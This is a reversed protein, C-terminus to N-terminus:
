SQSQERLERLSAIWADFSELTANRAPSPRLKEIKNRLLERARSLRSKVTGEPIDLIRGVEAVGLGEWYHLEVAMQMEVPLRRLAGLLVLHEEKRAVVLSPSEFSDAVSIDDMAEEPGHLERLERLFQIRAIGLVFARFSGEERYRDASELCALFTRQVLDEPNRACKNVFFRYVTAFHRRVLTTGAADDGGKWANLLDRDDIKM